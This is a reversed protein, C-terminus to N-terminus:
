QCVVSVFLSMSRPLRQPDATRSTAICYQSPHRIPAGVSPAHCGAIRESGVIPNGLDEQVGWYGAFLEYTWRGFLFADAGQYVQNVITM